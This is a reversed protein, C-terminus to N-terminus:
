RRTLLGQLFAILAAAALGAALGSYFIRNTARQQGDPSVVRIAPSSRDAWVLLGRDNSAPLPNTFTVEYPEFGPAFALEQKTPFGWDTNIEQTGEVPGTVSDATPNPEFLKDFRVDEGGLLGTDVSPLRGSVGDDRYTLELGCASGLLHSTGATLVSGSPSLRAHATGYFMQDNGVDLEHADTTWDTGDLDGVPQRMQGVLQDPDIIRAAGGLRLLFRIDAPTDTPPTNPTHSFRLFFTVETAPEGDRCRPTPAYTILASTGYQVRIDLSVDDPGFYRTTVSGAFGNPLPTPGQPRWHYALYAASGTAALLATLVVANVAHNLLTRRPPPTPRHGQRRTWLRVAAAVLLGVAAAAIGTRRQNAM